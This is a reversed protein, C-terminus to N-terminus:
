LFNANETKRTYCGAKANGERGNYLYKKVYAVIINMCDNSWERTYIADDEREGKHANLAKVTIYLIRM